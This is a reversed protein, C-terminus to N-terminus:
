RIVGDGTEWFEDELSDHLSVGNSISLGGNYSYLFNDRYLKRLVLMSGEVNCLIVHKGGSKKKGIAGHKGVEIDKSFNNRGEEHGAVGKWWDCTYIIIWLRDWISGESLLSLFGTREKERELLYQLIGRSHIAQKFSQGM